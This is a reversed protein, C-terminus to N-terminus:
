DIRLSNAFEDFKAQDSGILIVSYMRSDKAVFRIHADYTKDKDTVTYAAEIANLGNYTGKRSSNIKAQPTNQLASNLSAELARAEDLKFGTYDYVKVTYNKTRNDVIREYSTLPIDKDGDKITTKDISPFGPMLISFKNEPSSYTKMEEGSLVSKVQNSPSDESKNNLVNLLVTGIVAIIIVFGIPLVLKRFLQGRRKLKKGASTFQPSSPGTSNIPDFAGKIKPDVQKTMAM